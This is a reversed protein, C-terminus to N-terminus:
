HDFKWRILIGRFLPDLLDETHHVLILIATQIHFFEFFSTFTILRNYRCKREVITKDSPDEHVFKNETSFTCLHTLFNSIQFFDPHDEPDERKKTSQIMQVKMMMRWDNPRNMNKSPFTQQYNLRQTHYRSTIEQIPDRPHILQNVM